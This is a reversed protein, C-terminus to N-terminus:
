GPDSDPTVLGPDLDPTVVNDTGLQTDANMRVEM